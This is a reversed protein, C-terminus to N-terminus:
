SDTNACGDPLSHQQQHESSVAHAGHPLISAEGSARGGQREGGNNGLLENRVSRDADTHDDRNADREHVEAAMVLLVDVIGSGGVRGGGFTRSYDTRSDSGM